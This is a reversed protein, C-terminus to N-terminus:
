SVVQNSVLRRKCYDPRVLNLPNGSVSTPIAVTWFGEPGSVFSHDRQISLDNWGMQPMKVSDPFRRSKAPIPDLGEIERKGTHDAEESTILVM